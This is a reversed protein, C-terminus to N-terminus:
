ECRRGIVPRALAEASVLATKVGGKCSSDAAAAIWQRSVADFLVHTAGTSRVLHVLVPESESLAGVFLPMQLVFVEGNTVGVNAAAGRVIPDVAALSARVFKKGFAGADKVPRNPLFAPVSFVSDRDRVIAHCADCAAVVAQEEAGRMSAPYIAYRWATDDKQMLQVRTVGIPQKSAPFAPDSVSAFAIKALMAGKPFTRAGSVFAQQAIPNAYVFRQENNDSRFRVTVLTWREWFRDALKPDIGGYRDAKKLDPLATLAGPLASDDVAFSLFLVLLM